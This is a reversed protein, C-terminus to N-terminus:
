SCKISMIRTHQGLALTSRSQMSSLSISRSPKPRMGINNKEAKLILFVIVKTVLYSLSVICVYRLNAIHTNYLHMFNYSCEDVLMLVLLAM